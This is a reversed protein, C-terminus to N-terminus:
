FIPICGNYINNTKISKDSSGNLNQFSDNRSPVAVACLLANYFVTGRKNLTFFSNSMNFSCLATLGIHRSFPIEVPVNRSSRPTNTRKVFKM